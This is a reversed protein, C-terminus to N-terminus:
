VFLRYRPPPPPQSRPCVVNRLFSPTTAVVLGECQASSRRQAAEVSIEAAFQCNIDHGLRCSQQAPDSLGLQHAVTSNHRTSRVTPVQPAETEWFSGLVACDSAAAVRDGARSRLQLILSRLRRVESHM